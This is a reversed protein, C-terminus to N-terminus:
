MSSFKVVSAHSFPLMLSVTNEARFFWQVRVYYEGRVTEFFELIKGIYNPKRKEGQLAYLYCTLMLCIELLGKILHVHAIYSPYILFVSLQHVAWCVSGDKGVLGKLAAISGLVLNLLELVFYFM